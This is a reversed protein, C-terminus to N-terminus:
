KEDVTRSTPVPLCSLNNVYNASGQYSIVKGPVGVVVALDPIDHTVVCNAGIAADNGVRVNGIIKAGPGIYVNDGILPCGKRDGRNTVGITVEHSLNCNQGIVAKDNIFIGGIHGIYLGGGIQTKYSIFLHYKFMLHNLILRAFPFLVLKLIPNQKLFTCTRMWFSFQFGPVLFLQVAFVAFRIKGAYRYLDAKVLSIYEQFSM